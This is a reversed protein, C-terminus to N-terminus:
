FTFIFGQFCSQRNRLSGLMLLILSNQPRNINLFRLVVLSTLTNIEGALFICYVSIIYIYIYLMIIPLDTCFVPYTDDDKPRLTCSSLCYRM